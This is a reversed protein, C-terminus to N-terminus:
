WDLLALDGLSHDLHSRFLSFVEVLICVRANSVKWSNEATQRIFRERKWLKIMEIKEEWFSLIKCTTHVVGKSLTMVPKHQQFVDRAVIKSRKPLPKRFGHFFCVKWVFIFIQSNMSKFFIYVYCFRIKPRSLTGNFEGVNEFCSIEVDFVIKIHNSM